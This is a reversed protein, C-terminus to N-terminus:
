EQIHEILSLPMYEKSTIYDLPLIKIRVNESLKYYFVVDKRRNKIVIDEINQPLFPKNRTNIVQIQYTGEIKPQQLINNETQGVVLLSTFLLFFVPVIKKM